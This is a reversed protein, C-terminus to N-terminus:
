NERLMNSLGKIVDIDEKNLNNDTEIVAECWSISANKNEMKKSALYFINSINKSVKKSIELFVEPIPEYTLKIKTKFINLAVKLDMLEKVRDSYRKSILFGIYTSTGFIIILVCYKIIQM